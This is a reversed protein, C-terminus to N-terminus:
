RWFAFALSASSGRSYGGVLPVTVIGVQSFGPTARDPISAPEAAVVINSPSDLQTHRLAPIFSYPPFPIDRLFGRWGAADNPAIGVHSFRPAVAASILRQEGQHFSHMMMLAMYPRSRSPVASIVRSTGVINIARSVRIDRDRNGAVLRGILLRTHQTEISNNLGLYSDDKIIVRCEFGSRGADLIPPQVVPPLYLRKIYGLLWVAGNESPTNTSFCNLTPVRLNTPRLWRSRDVEDIVPIMGNPTNPEPNECTPITGYSAMPRRTKEPIERKGVMENGRQEMSAETVRIPLTRLIEVDVEGASLNFETTLSLGFKYYSSQLLIAVSSPQAPPSTHEGIAEYKMNGRLQPEISSPKQKERIRRFRSESARSSQHGERKSYRQKLSLLVLPLLSREDKVDPLRDCFRCKNRDGPAQSHLVQSWRREEIYMCDIALIIAESIFVLDKSGVLTFNHNAPFAFSFSGGGGGSFVRRGAADEPVIGVQSFGPTVRGSISGPEGLRSALLRVANCYSNHCRVRDIRRTRGEHVTAIPTTVAFAILLAVLGAKTNVARVQVCMSSFVARPRPPTTTLSNTEWGPSGPKLGPLTMRPNECLPFRAPFIASDPRNVRINKRKRRGKTGANPKGHRLPVHTISATRLRHASNPKLFHYTLVDVVYGGSAYAGYRALHAHGM